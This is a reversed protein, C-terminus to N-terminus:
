QRQVLVAHVENINPLINVITAKHKGLAKRSAPIEAPLELMKVMKDM